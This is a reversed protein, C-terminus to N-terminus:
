EKKKITFTKRDNFEAVKGDNWQQIPRIYGVIRSFVQCKTREKM